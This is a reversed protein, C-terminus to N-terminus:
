YNMTVNPIEGKVIAKVLRLSTAPDGTVAVIADLALNNFEKCHELNAKRATEIGELRTKEALVKAKEKEIAEQAAVLKADEIEKEHKIRNADANIDDEKEKLEAEKAKAADERAKLESERLEEAAKVAADEKEKADIAADLNAQKIKALPEDHVDYMVHVRNHWVKASANLDTVAKRLDTGKALRKKDIRIEVKRLLLLYAECDELGKETTLDFKMKSNMEEFEVIEAEFEDFPQIATEPAEVLEQGENM